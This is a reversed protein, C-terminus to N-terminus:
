MRARAYFWRIHETEQYTVSRPDADKAEPSQDASAAEPLAAAATAVGAASLLQRRRIRQVDEVAEAHEERPEPSKRGIRM